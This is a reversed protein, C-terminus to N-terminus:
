GDIPRGRLQIVNSGGEQKRRSTLILRVLDAVQPDERAQRTYARIACRRQEAVTTRELYALTWLTVEDCEGLRDPM